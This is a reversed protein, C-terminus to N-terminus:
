HWPDVACHFVPKLLIGEKKKTDQVQTHPFPLEGQDVQGLVDYGEEEFIGRELHPV